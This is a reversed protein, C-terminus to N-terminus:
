KALWLRFPEGEDVISSSIPRYNQRQQRRPKGRPEILEAPMHFAQECARAIARRYAAVTYRDQTARGQRRKRNSGPRNGCTM